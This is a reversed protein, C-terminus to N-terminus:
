QRIPRKWIAPPEPMVFSMRSNPSNHNSRFSHLAAVLLRGNQDCRLDRLERMQRGMAVMLGAAALWGTRIAPSNSNSSTALASLSTELGSTPGREM